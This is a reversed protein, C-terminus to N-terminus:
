RGAAVSRNRLPRDPEGCQSVFGARWSVTFKLREESEEEWDITMANSAGAGHVTLTKLLDAHVVYCDEGPTPFAFVAAGNITSIAQPHSKGSAVVVGQPPLCKWDEIGWKHPSLLVRAASNGVVVVPVASRSELSSCQAAITSLYERMQTHTANYLKRLEPGNAPQLGSDTVLKRFSWAVLHQRVWDGVHEALGTDLGADLCELYRKREDTFSIRMPLVPAGAVFDLKEVPPKVGESDFALAAIRNGMDRVKGVDVTHSRLTIRREHTAVARLKKLALTTALRGARPRHTKEFLAQLVTVSAHGTAFAGGLVEKRLDALYRQVQELKDIDRSWREILSKCRSIGTRREAALAVLLIGQARKMSEMNTAAGSWSYIWGSVEPAETDWRLREAFGDIRAGATEDGFITGLLRTLLDDPNDLPRADVNGGAKQATAAVLAAALRLERSDAAPIDGANQILLLVVYLRMSEWYRRIALSMAKTAFEITVPEAGGWLFTKAAEWDKDALTLTVHRVRFDYEIDACDLEHQRNGWWKLFNELLWVSGTEDGRSVAKLLLQASHEIHSAYVLARGTLARWAAIDGGRFEKPVDVLFHGWSGIFAVVAHEYVKNLPAPLTGSFTTAGPVLSADAKRTWWGALQYALNTGVLQANVLLKEPRPPLKSAIRAPVVAMANFLRPDDELRNVAIRGIDRYPKLWELDFSSLGWAYPSVAITAANGEVGEADAASALLLTRHLRLVDRLRDEATGFRQQEAAAEVEGGIEELMKRTSLSLAGARVPKYVFAMRVLVREFWLLPPGNEIACLVVEGSVEAGVMPPLTLTPTKRKRDGEFKAARRSWLAVVLHLLRLRVDHLALSGRIDRKVAPRGQRISFTYVRPEPGEDTRVDPFGWDSQPANVFIHQKVAAILEARLAVEVAVRTFAYRQEEEQIFRVTRSLFLGTLLVNLLLWAGNMALLPAMFKGLFEHSSYPIAFYQAGMALLLGVSSGGAPVVASDLIYVRLSVTSHAKRQLMLAIFSLVIPYVLAVLTAQVSWPVGAYAAIDFDAQLKPAPLGWPATWKQVTVVYAAGTSLLGVLAAFRVPHDTSWMLFRRFLGYRYTRLTANGRAWSRVERWARPGIRGTVWAPILILVRELM